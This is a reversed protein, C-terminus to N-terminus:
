RINNSTAGVAGDHDTDHLAMKAGDQDWGILRGRADCAAVTLDGIRNRSCPFCSQLPFCLVIMMMRMTMM